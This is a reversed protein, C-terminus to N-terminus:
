SRRWWPRSKPPESERAFFKPAVKDTWKKAEAESLQRVASLRAELASFMRSAPIVRRVSCKVLAVVRRGELPVVRSPPFDGPLWISGIGGPADWTFKGDVPMSTEADIAQWSYLAFNAGYTGEVEQPGEGRAAALVAKPAPADVDLRRLSPALTESLLTLFQTNDVCGDVVMEWAEKLEPILIVFPLEVSIELVWAIWFAGDCSRSIARASACLSPTDQMKGLLARDRTAVAAIPRYWIELSQFARVAELDRDALGLIEDNSLHHEGVYMGDEPDSPEDEDPPDVHRENVMAVLRQAAELARELPLLMAAGLPGSAVGREVLVGGLLALQAALGPHEHDLREALAAVMSDRVSVPAASAEDVCAALEDLAAEWQDRGRDFLAIATSLRGVLEM